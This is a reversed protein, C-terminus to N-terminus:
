GPNDKIIGYIKEIFTNRQASLEQEREPTPSRHEIMDLTIVGKEQLLEQIVRLQDKVVWLEAGLALSITMLNDVVLNEFYSPKKSLAWGMEFNGNPLKEM